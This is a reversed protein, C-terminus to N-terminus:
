FKKETHHGSGKLPASSWIIVNSPEKLHLNKQSEIRIRHTKHISKEAGICMATQYCFFVLGVQPQNKRIKKDTTNSGHHGKGVRLKLGSRQTSRVQSKCDKKADRVGGIHISPWLCASQERVVGFTWMDLLFETEFALLIGKSTGNIGM